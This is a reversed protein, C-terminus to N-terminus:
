GQALGLIEIPNFIFSQRDAPYIDRGRLHEVADVWLEITADSCRDIVYGFAALEPTRRLLAATTTRLPEGMFEPKPTGTQVFVRYAFGTGPTPWVMQTRLMQRAADLVEAVATTVVANMPVVPEMEAACVTSDLVLGTGGAASGLTRRDTGFLLYHSADQRAINVALIFEHRKDLAQEALYDVDKFTSDRHLSILLPKPLPTNARKVLKGSNIALLRTARGIRAITGRAPAHVGKMVDSDRKVPVGKERRDLIYFPHDHSVIVFAMQIDQEAGIERTCAFVDRWRGSRRLPRHAHFIVRVTDGPQWNNRAKM